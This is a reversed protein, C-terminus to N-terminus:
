QPARARSLRQHLAVGPPSASSELAFVRAVIDNLDAASLVPEVRALRRYAQIHHQLRECLALM